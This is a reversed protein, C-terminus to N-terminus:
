GEPECDEIFLRINNKGNWHNRGLRFALRKFHSPPRAAPPNFRVAELAPAAPGASLRLQWHTQGMLRFHDVKVDRALFVPEPNGIGFPELLELQKLLNESVESLQLHADIELPPKLPRPSGTLSVVARAFAEAFGPIRQPAITLGAAMAHGGFRELFRSSMTFARFLDIGAVSRASGKGVGSKTSILVVPKGMERALRGAAIGLVGEHWHPDAMVLTPEQALGPHANILDIINNWISKELDQREGNLRHLLAARPLTTKLDQDLLFDLSHGANDLRGAANLRPALRFAVDRSTVVPGTLTGDQRLAQLWPKPAQGLVDLGAKALIRNDERLPVMDAITGIAVLDCYEKLNPQTGPSWFGLERLHRRLALVLFFAVGSGALHSLGAPCDPRQPNVLAVAPALPLGVQHHDTVIVDIGRTGALAIAEHSATGCDATIILTIGKPLALTDIHQAALGYGETMRHPIYWHPDAGARRLFSVLIATATVGDTDYDGFILIKEKSVLARAVRAVATHMDALGLPSRLGALSPHLFTAAAAATTIGRQLLLAAILPHCGIQRALNLAADPDNDKIQWPRTM